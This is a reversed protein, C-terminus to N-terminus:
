MREQKRLRKWGMAWINEFQKQMFFNSAFSEAAWLGFPIIYEFGTVQTKPPESSIEQFEIDAIGRWFGSFIWRVRKEKEFFVVKTKLPFPFGKLAIIWWGNKSQRVPAVEGYLKVWCAPDKFYSFVQKIPLEFEENFQILM